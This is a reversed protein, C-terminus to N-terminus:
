AVVANTRVAEAGDRGERLTALAYAVICLYCVVPAVLAFGLGLHDALLGTVMPVIAGGVIAVCLIGAGQAARAGLGEIALAFITPFMISNALGVAILACAAFVGASFGSLTALLAAALACAALALAPRVVRLVASGIVRGVLAGGWYFGLLHGATAPDAGLIRPQELYSVMLTGISVEAGVYLFLALAGFGLRPRRLLDLGLGKGAMDAPPTATIWGRLRWFLVALLALGGAIVLFPTQILGAEARRAAALAEPGLHAPDGTVAAASLITWAGIAPGVTTGLANFTQALTLRSPAQEASGLGAVLPNAAVQLVAIGSAMVFLALLFFPFVGLRAAPAFLACGTAMVLLGVVLGRMSGIRTVLRGAPLSVVAYALFFSFQTLTAEAYSLDFLSKLKPTVIDVLVTALGWAFFLALLFPLLLTGRKATAAPRAEPQSAALM